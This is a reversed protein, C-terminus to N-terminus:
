SIRSPVYGRSEQRSIGMAGTAAEFKAQLGRRGSTLDVHSGIIGVLAQPGAREGRRRACSSCPSRKDVDMSNRKSRGRGNSAAQSDHATRLNRALKKDACPEPQGPM